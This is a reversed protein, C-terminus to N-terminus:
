KIFYNFLYFPSITLLSVVFAITLKVYRKQPWNKFIVYGSLTLVFIGLPLTIQGNGTLSAGMFYAISLIIKMVFLKHKETM